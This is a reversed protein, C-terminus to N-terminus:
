LLHVTTATRDTKKVFPLFFVLVDWHFPPTSYLIYHAPHAYAPPMPWVSPPTADWSIQAYLNMLLIQTYQAPKQALLHDCNTHKALLFLSSMPPPQARHFLRYSSVNATAFPPFSNQHNSENAPCPTYHILVSIFVHPLRGM